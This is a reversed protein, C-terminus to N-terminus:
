LLKYSRHLTRQDQYSQGQNRERNAALELKRQEVMQRYREERERERM